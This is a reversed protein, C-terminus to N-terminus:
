IDAPVKSTRNLVHMQTKNGKNFTKNKLSHAKKEQYSFLFSTTLEKKQKPETSFIFPTHTGMYFSKFISVIWFSREHLVVLNNKFLSWCLYCLVKLWPVSSEFSRLYRFSSGLPDLSFVVIELLIPLVVNSVWNVLM